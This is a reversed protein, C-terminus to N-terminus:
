EKLWITHSILEGLQPFKVISYNTYNIMQKTPFNHLQTWIVVFAKSAMNPLKTVRSNMSQTLQILVLRKQLKVETSFFISINM